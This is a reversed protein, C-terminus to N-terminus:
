HHTQMTADMETTTIHKPKIEILIYKIEITIYKIEDITIHKIEDIIWNCQSLSSHVPPPIHGQKAQM